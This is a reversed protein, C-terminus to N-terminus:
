PNAGYTQTLTHVYQTADIAQGWYRYFGSKQHVRESIRQVSLRKDDHTPQWRTQRFGQFPAFDVVREPDLRFGRRRLEDVLTRYREKLFEGKDYFFTVHGTNLTYQKPINPVGRKSALSRRLAAAVMPLERYEAMLHQDTLDQPDITNIRTM